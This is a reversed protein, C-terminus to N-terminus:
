PTGKLAAVPRDAVRAAVAPADRSVTSSDFPATAHPAAALTSYVVLGAAVFRRVIVSPGFTM